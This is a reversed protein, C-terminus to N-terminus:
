FYKIIQKALSLKQKGKMKNYQAIKMQKLSEKIMIEVMQTLKNSELCLLIINYIIYYSHRNNNAVKRNLRKKYNMISFLSQHKHWKQM